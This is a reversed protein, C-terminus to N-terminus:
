RIADRKANCPEASRMARQQALTANLKLVRDRLDNVLVGTRVVQVQSDKMVAKNVTMSRNVQDVADAFRSFSREAQVSEGAIIFKLITAM